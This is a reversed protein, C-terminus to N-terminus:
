EAYFSCFNFIVKCITKQNEYCGLYDAQIDGVFDAVDWLLHTCATTWVDTMPSLIQTQLFLAHICNWM